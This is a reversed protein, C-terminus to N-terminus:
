SAHVNLLRAEALRHVSERLSDIGINDLIDSAFAQNLLAKAQLANIGRSRLYFLAEDDMQGTTAGHTCKVDDAFIELQPKANIVADDSLLINKNSQYANTKQADKAVLIKGNFVGHAKGGVIGKYLQNSLCHPLNHYVSTHNDILQEGGAIYLGYLHTECNEAALAIHLSNRVLRGGLTVTNVTFRSDKEQRVWTSCVQSASLSEEQVIDFELSAGAETVIEHVANVLSPTADGASLTVWAMRASSHKEAVVLLRHHVIAAEGASTINVLIVPRDASVGGPIHVVVGEHLFATNLATFADNNTEAIRGLYQQVVPSDMAAAFPQIGVPGQHVYGPALKGNDLLVVTVDDGLALKSRVDTETWGAPAGPSVSLPTRLLPTLDTYKWDEHKRTPFGVRSFHEMSRARLAGWGNPQREELRRFEDNLQLQLSTPATV